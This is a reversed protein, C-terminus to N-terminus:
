RFSAFSSYGKGDTNAFALLIPKEWFSFIVRTGEESQATGYINDPLVYFIISAKNDASIIKKGNIEIFSGNFMGGGFFNGNRYLLVSIEADTKAYGVFFTPAMKDKQFIIETSLEREVTVLTGTSNSEHEIKPRAGHEKIPFLINLFTTQKTPSDTEISLGWVPASKDDNTKRTRMIFRKPAAVYQYLSSIKGKYTVWRDKPEFPVASVFNCQVSSPQTNQISDFVLYYDPKIYIV